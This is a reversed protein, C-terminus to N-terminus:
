VTMTTLETSLSTLQPTHPFRGCRLNLDQLSSAYCPVLLRATVELAMGQEKESLDVKAGGLSVRNLRTLHALRALASAVAAWGAGGMDNGSGALVPLLMWSLHPPDRGLRSALSAHHRAPPPPCSLRM